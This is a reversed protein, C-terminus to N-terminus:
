QSFLQENPKRYTEHYLYRITLKTKKGGRNKSHSDKESQAKEQDKGVQVKEHFNMFCVNMHDNILNFTYLANGYSNDFTFDLERPNNSALIRKTKYTYGRIKEAINRRNRLIKNMTMFRFDYSM